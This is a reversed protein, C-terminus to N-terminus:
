ASVPPRSANFLLEWLRLIIGKVSVLNRYARLRPPM